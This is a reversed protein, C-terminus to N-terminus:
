NQSHERQVLDSINPDMQASLIDSNNEFYELRHSWTVQIDRISLRTSSM